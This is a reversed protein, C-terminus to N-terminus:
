ATKGITTVMQERHYACRGSMAPADPAIPVIRMM